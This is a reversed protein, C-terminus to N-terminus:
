RPCNPWYIQRIAALLEIGLKFHCKFPSLPILLPSNLGCFRITVEQLTLSWKWLTVLSLASGCAQGSRVPVVAASADGRPPSPWWNSWNCWTCDKKDKDTAILSPHTNRPQSNTLTQWWLDLHNSHGHALRSISTPALPTVPAQSQEGNTSACGLSWKTTSNTGYSFPYNNWKLSFSLSWATVQGSMGCDRLNGCSNQQPLFPNSTNREETM